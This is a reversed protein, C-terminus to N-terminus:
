RTITSNGFNFIMIVSIRSERERLCGYCGQRGAPLCERRSEIMSEAIAKRIHRSTYSKLDRIIDELKHEGKTGIILHVHSTMICYAYVELGKEKQCFKLSEIFIERYYDRIFIDIWHVITFTVFYIKEQDRIQYKRGM